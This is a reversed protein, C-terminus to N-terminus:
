GTVVSKRKEVPQFRSGAILAETKMDSFQNLERGFNHLYKIQEGDRDYSIVSNSITPQLPWLGPAQLLVVWM